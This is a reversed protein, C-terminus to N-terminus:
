GDLAAAEVCIGIVGLVALRDYDAMSRVTWAAVGLGREAAAAVAAADIARWEVSIAVCGLGVAADLTRADLDWANLWRPWGPRATALWRLVDHHFSAVVSRDLASGAGAETGAGRAADLVELARPVIEKFEVDIFPQRGAAELVTALTTVGLAECEAATMSAALADVGQVRRLSVDHILLPVGDSSGRVDLELGDCGPIRLAAELAALSNEPAVRMDGRHALRLPRVAPGPSSRAPSPDPDAGGAVDANM